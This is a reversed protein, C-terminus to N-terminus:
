RPTRQYRSKRSKGDKRKRSTVKAKNNAFELMVAVVHKCVSGDYPCDCSSSIDGDEEIIEVNYDDTGAVVASIRKEGVDMELAAGDEYYGEGRQYIAGGGSYQKVFGITIDKLKM